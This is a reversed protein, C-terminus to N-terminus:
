FGVSSQREFPVVFQGPGIPARRQPNGELDEALRHQGEQKAAAQDIENEAIELFREDQEAKAIIDTPIVTTCSVRVSRTRSASRSKDLGRARTM